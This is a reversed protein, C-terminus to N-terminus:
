NLQLDSTTVLCPNADSNQSEALLDWLAKYKKAMLIGHYDNLANKEIIRNWVKNLKTLNECENIAKEMSSRCEKYEGQQQKLKYEDTDADKTDDIAFLGNLAYKRAYSSATGTMQSPAMGPANFSERACGQATLADGGNSLSATAIIYVHEGYMEVRDSMGLFVGEPLIKKVAEVVDECSRYKYKGFNNNQSKPAKLEKQM